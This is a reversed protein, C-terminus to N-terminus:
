NKSADQEFAARRGRYYGLCYCLLGAGIASQLCFLLCEVEKSPPSWLPSAWPRYHPALREVEKTAQGDSGAFLEDSRGRQWWPLLPLAVIAAITILLSLHLTKM